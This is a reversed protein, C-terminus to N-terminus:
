GAAKSHMSFAASFKNKEVSPQFPLLYVLIISRHFSRSSESLIVGSRQRVLAVEERLTLPRYGKAIEAAFAAEEAAERQRKLEPYV